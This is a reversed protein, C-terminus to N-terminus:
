ARFYSPIYNSVDRLSREHSLYNPDFRSVLQWFRKGHSFYVTHCLEHILVYRVLEYPLFLLRDNLNINKERNCSGWLTKQSRVSIRNFSLQIEKSVELIWKSLHEQAMRRLWPNFAFLCTDFDSIPGTFILRQDFNRLMIKKSRQIHHYRVSWVQNLSILAIETPLAKEDHTSENLAQLHKEVWRRKSNLFELGDAISTGRPLIIELGKKPNIALNVNRARRSHRIHYSPPWESM